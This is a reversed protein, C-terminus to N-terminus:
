SLKYGLDELYSMDIRWQEKSRIRWQDFSGLFYSKAENLTQNNIKMLRKIVFEQGLGVTATRGAHKVMHCHPCLAIFGVLTQTKKKYDYEWKEHCEVAHKFKQTKGTEGCIECVYNAKAYCENRFKDWTPGDVLSRVNNFWSSKPVLEITLKLQNDINKSSTSM